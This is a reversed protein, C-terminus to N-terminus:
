SLLKQNYFRIVKSPLKLLWINVVLEYKENILFISLRLLSFLKEYATYNGILDFKLIKM